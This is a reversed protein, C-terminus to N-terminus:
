LVALKGSDVVYDSEQLSYIRYDVSSDDMDFYEVDDYGETCYSIYWYTIM